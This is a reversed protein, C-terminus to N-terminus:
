EYKLVDVINLKSAQYAPYAGASIGLVLAFAIGIIVLEPTISVISIFSAIVSVGVFSLILGVAAGILSLLASEEIVQKLIMFNTAGIAKMIGFERKRENVSMIMTNMIGIGGIIASIAGIGLTLINIQGVLDSFQRAIDKNTLAQVGSVSNEIDRAIEEVRSVDDVVAIVMSIKDTKRIEQLTKIPVIVDAGMGGSSKELKGIIEFTTNKIKITDGVYLNDYGPFGGSIIAVRDEEDGEELGRGYEVRIKEGAMLSADAPPIGAVYFGRGFGSIELLGYEPVARKVGEIADVESVINESLTGGFSSTMTKGEPLVMITGATEEGITQVIKNMGAGISGLSVIMAVGIALGIITLTNRLRRRLINKIALELM